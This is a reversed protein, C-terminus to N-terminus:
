ISGWDVLMARVHKHIGLYLKINNIEPLHHLMAPLIKGFNSNQQCRDQLNMQLSDDHLYLMNMNRKEQIM